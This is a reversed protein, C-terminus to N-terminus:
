EDEVSNQEDLTTKILFLGAELSHVEIQDVTVEYEPGYYEVLDCVDHALRERDTKEIFVELINDVEDDVKVKCIL